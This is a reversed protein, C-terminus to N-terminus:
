GEREASSVVEGRGVAFAAPSRGFIRSFSAREGPEIGVLEGECEVERLPTRLVPSQQDDPVAIESKFFIEAPRV